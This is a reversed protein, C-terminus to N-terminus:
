GRSFSVWVTYTGPAADMPVGIKVFFVTAGMEASGFAGRTDVNLTAPFDSWYGEAPKFGSGANNTQFTWKWNLGPTGDISVTVPIAVNARNRVNVPIVLIEGPCFESADAGVEAEITIDAGYDAPSLTIDPIPSDDVMYPELDDGAMLSLYIVEEITIESKITVFTYAAYAIGTAILLALVIAACAIKKNKNMKKEGKYVVKCMHKSQANLEQSFM